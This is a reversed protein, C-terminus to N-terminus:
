FVQSVTSQGGHCTSDGYILGVEKTKAAAMKRCLSLLSSSKFCRINQHESCHDLLASCSGAAAVTMAFLVFAAPIICRQKNLIRIRWILFAARRSSSISETTFIFVGGMETSLRM